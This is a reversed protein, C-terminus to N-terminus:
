AHGHQRYGHPMPRAQTAAEHLAAALHHAAMRSLPMHFAGVAMLRSARLAVAVPTEPDSLSVVHARWSMGGSQSEVTGFYGRVSLLGFGLWTGDPPAGRHGQAAWALWQGLDHAQQHSLRIARTSPLLVNREITLAVARGHDTDVGYVGMATRWHATNVRTFTCAVRGEVLMGIGSGYRTRDREARVLTLVISGFIALPVISTVIAVLVLVVRGVVEM